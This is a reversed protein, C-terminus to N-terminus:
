LAFCCQVGHFMVYPKVPCWLACGPMLIVSSPECLLSPGTHIPSASRNSGFDRGVASFTFPSCCMHPLSATSESHELLRATNESYEPLSATSECTLCVRQVRPLRCLMNPCALVEPAHGYYYDALGAADAAAQGLLAAEPSSPYWM